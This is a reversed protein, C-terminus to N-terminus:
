LEIHYKKLKYGIMRETIGLSKAAKRITKNKILAEKIRQKEIAEIVEPLTAGTVTMGIAKGTSLNAPLEKV